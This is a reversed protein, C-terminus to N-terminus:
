GFFGSTVCSVGAKGVQTVVRPNEIEMLARVIAVPSDSTAVSFTHRTLEIVDDNSLNENLDTAMCEATGAPLGIAQFRNELTATALTACSVLMLSSLTIILLSLYHRM